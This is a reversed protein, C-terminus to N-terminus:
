QIFMILLFYKKMYFNYGNPFLIAELATEIDVNELRLSVDGTVEGSVVLNLQYQQAIMHLVMPLSVAELELSLKERNDLAAATLSSMLILAIIAMGAMYKIFRM